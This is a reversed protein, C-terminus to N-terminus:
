IVIEDILRELIGAADMGFLLIQLGPGFAVV